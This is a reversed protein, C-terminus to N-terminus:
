KLKSLVDLFSTDNSSAFAVLSLQWGDDELGAEQFWAATGATTRSASAVASKIFVEELGHSSNVAESWIRVFLSAMM